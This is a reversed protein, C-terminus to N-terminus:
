LASTVIVVPLQFCLPKILSNKFFMGSFRNKLPNVCSYSLTCANFHSLREGVPFM